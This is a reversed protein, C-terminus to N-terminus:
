EPVKQCCVNQLNGSTLEDMHRNHIRIVEYAALCLHDHGRTKTTIKDFDTFFNVSIHSFFQMCAHLVPLM